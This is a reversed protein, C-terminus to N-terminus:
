LVMETIAGRGNMLGGAGGCIAASFARRVPDPVAARRRHGCPQLRDEVPM